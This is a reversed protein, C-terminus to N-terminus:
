REVWPIDDSYACRGTGAAGFGCRYCIITALVHHDVSKEEAGECYEVLHWIRISYSSCPSRLRFRRFFSLDNLLSLYCFPGRGRPRAGHRKTGCRETSGHAMAATGEVCREFRCFQRQNTVLLCELQFGSTCSPPQLPSVGNQGAM